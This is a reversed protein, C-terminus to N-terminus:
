TDKNLVDRNVINGKLLADNQFDAMMTKSTTCLCSPIFNLQQSTLPDQLTGFM